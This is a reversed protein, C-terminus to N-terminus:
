NEFFNRKKFGATLFRTFARFNTLWMIRANNKKNKIMRPVCYNVITEPYDGLINYVKKTKEPLEIHTSGGNATKIFDTIMIGPTLRCIKIKGNTLEQSEKALALTFYTVARKTTGYISLGMMTADNSGYGEVNYIQGFGQEKMKSFAIKSGYITGKLDIDLMFDIEQQTLEFIPKDPQNVGANNIWIDVTNFNIKAFDFLEELQKHSTVDCKKMIVKCKENNIENILEYAKKLNEENIDSLCVDYGLSKFKKALEFGFGRASGTIVVSGM